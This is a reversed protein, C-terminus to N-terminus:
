KSVINDTKNNSIALVILIYAPFFYRPAYIPSVSFIICYVIAAFLFINNFSIKKTLLKYLIFLNLFSQTLVITYSYFEATDLFKSYRAILGIFLFIFKPFFAILYGLPGSNQLQIFFNFLGSGESSGVQGLEAITNFKEFADINIYYFISILLLLFFLTWKPKLRFPNIKTLLIFLILIFLLMQWRVFISSALSLILDFISKSKYYKYFFAIALISVIEKNIAIISSFFMPSILLYTLLMYRNISYEKILTNYFFIVILINIIFVATFSSNVIDLLITPGILNPFLLVIEEYKHKEAAFEIYTESDAYFEFDIEGKIAKIGITILFIFAFFFYIFLIISSKKM